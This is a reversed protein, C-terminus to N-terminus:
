LYTAEGAVADGEDDEDRVWDVMGELLPVAPESGEGIKSPLESESPLEESEASSRGTTYRFLRDKLVGKDDFAFPFCLARDGEDMDTPMDSAVTLCTRAKGALARPEVTGTEALNTSKCEDRTGDKEM